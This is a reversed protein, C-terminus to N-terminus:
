TVRQGGARLDKGREERRGQLQGTLRAGDPSEDGSRWMRPAEYRTLARSLETLKEVARDLPGLLPELDPHRRRILQSSFAINQIPTNAYDRVLLFTRAVEEAAAAEALLRLRERELAVGRLRYALLVGAFLAYFLILWPEGVPLRGQIEPVLVYYKAIAMGAFGTIAVLGVWLEQALLAVALAGLKNAQFPTWPYTTAWYSSTIWLAVLISATNALFAHSCSRTSVHRRRAALLVILGMGVLASLLAPYWPMGPVDRGILYDAPLGIVNLAAAVMAGRCAPLAPVGRAIM